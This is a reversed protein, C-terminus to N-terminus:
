TPYGRGPDRLHSEDDSSRPAAMAEAARRFSHRQVCKRRIQPRLVRSLTFLGPRRRTNLLQLQFKHDGLRPPINTWLRVFM